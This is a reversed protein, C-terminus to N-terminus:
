RKRQGPARKAAPKPAGLRRRLVDERAVSYGFFGEPRPKLPFYEGHAYSVLNARGLHLSGDPDFLADKVYVDEVACLFLEHSGLPLRQQVRCCLFAPAEDLAPAPFGDVERAHLRMERFKDVDRGSKVGCFDAACCFDVGSGGVRQNVRWPCPKRGARQFGQQVYGRFM